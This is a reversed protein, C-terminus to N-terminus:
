SFLQQTWKHYSLEAVNKKFVQYDPLVNYLFYQLGQNKGVKNIVDNPKNIRRIEESIMNLRIGSCKWEAFDATISIGSNILLYYTYKSNPM